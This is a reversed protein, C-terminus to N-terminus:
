NPLLIDYHPRTDRLKHYLSIYPKDKAGTESELFFKESRTNFTYVRIQFEDSYFESNKEMRHTLVNYLEIVKKAAPHRIMKLFDARIAHLYSPHSDLIQIIEQVEPSKSNSTIFAAFAQTSELTWSSSIPFVFTENKPLILYKKKPVKRNSDVKMKKRSRHNSELTRRKNLNKPPLVKPEEIQQRIEKIDATNETKIMASSDNKKLNAQSDGNLFSVSLNNIFEFFSIKKNQVGSTSIGVPTDKPAMVKEALKRGGALVADGTSKEESVALAAGKDFIVADPAERSVLVRGTFTIMAEKSLQELLPDTKSFIKFPKFTNKIIRQLKKGNQDIIEVIFFSKKVTETRNLVRSIFYIRDNNEEISLDKLTVLKLAMLFNLGHINFINDDGYNKIIIKISQSNHSDYNFEPFEMQFISMCDIYKKLANRPVDIGIWKQNRNLIQLLRDIEYETIIKKLIIKECFRATLVRLISLSHQPFITNAVNSINDITEDYQDHVAFAKNVHSKNQSFNSPSAPLIYRERETRKEQNLSRQSSSSEAALNSRNQSPANSLFPNFTSM